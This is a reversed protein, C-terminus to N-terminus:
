RTPCTPIPQTWRTWIESRGILEIGIYGHLDLTGDPLLKLTAHYTKGGEPDYVTGDAWRDAGVPKFGTIFVLGCLSRGRLAPDPNRLDRAEPNPENPRLRFWSVKGCLTEGGCRFITIIGDHKETLWQGEPSGAAGAGFALALAFLGASVGLVFSRM